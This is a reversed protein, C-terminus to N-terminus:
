PRMSAVAQVLRVFSPGMDAVILAVGEANPHIADAQFYSTLVQARNPLDALAALFNPYLDVGYRQALDPYIADFEAKYQAGFNGPAAIGILLVPIDKETAARLIGDLNARAQSPALGRLADNGGLSVVLADVGPTLTWGVRSLGGATTDGSVGANLLVVDQANADLWRQMQVVFGQDAPLGYGRVLSDGLAAVTVPQTQAQSQTQVQAQAAGIALFGFASFIFAAFLNNISPCKGYPTIRFRRFLFPM